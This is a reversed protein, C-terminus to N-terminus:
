GLLRCNCDALQLESHPRLDALLTAVVLVVGGFM